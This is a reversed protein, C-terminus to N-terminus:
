MSGANALGSAHGSTIVRLGIGTTHSPNKQRDASSALAPMNSHFTGTLLSACFGGRSEFFIDGFRFLCFLGGPPRSGGCSRVFYFFVYFCPHHWKLVGAEM